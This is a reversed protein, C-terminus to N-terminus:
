DAGLLVEGSGRTWRRCGHVGPPGVARAGAPLRLEMVQSWSRGRRSGKRRGTEKEEEREVGEGDRYWTRVPSCGVGHIVELEEGVGATEVM